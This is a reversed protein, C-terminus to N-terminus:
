RDTDGSWGAYGCDLLFLRTFGSQGARIAANVSGKDQPSYGYFIVDGRKNLVKEALFTLKKLPINIAGPLRGKAFEAETRLDVLQFTDKKERRLAIRQKLDVASITKYEFGEGGPLPVRQVTEEAFAAGALVFPLILGFAIRLARKM